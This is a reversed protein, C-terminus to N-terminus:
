SSIYALFLCNDSHTYKKTLVRVCIYTSELNQLYKYYASEKSGRRLELIHFSGGFGIEELVHQYRRTQARIPIFILM